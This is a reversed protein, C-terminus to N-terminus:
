RLNAWRVIRTATPQPSLREFSTWTGSSELIPNRQGITGFRQLSLHLRM